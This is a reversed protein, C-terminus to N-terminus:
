TTGLISLAHSKDMLFRLSLTASRVIVRAVGCVIDTETSCVSVRNGAGIHSVYEARLHKQSINIQRRQEEVNSIFFLVFSFNTTYSESLLQRICPIYPWRLAM